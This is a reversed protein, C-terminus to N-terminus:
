CRAMVLGLRGIAAGRTGKDGQRRTERGSPMAAAGNSGGVGAAYWRWAQFNFSFDPGRAHVWTALPTLSYIQHSIGECTRIRGRGHGSFVRCKAANEHERARLGT